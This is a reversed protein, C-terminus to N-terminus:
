DCSLCILPIPQGLPATGIPLMVGKCTLCRPEHRLIWWRPFHQWYFVSLKDRWSQRVPVSDSPHKTTMPLM